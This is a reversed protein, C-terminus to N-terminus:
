KNFFPLGHMQILAKYLVHVTSKVLFFGDVLETTFKSCAPSLMLSCIHGLVKIKVSFDCPPVFSFTPKTAM